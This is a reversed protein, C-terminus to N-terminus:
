VVTWQGLNTRAKPPDIEDALARLFSATLSRTFIIDEVEVITETRTKDSQGYMQVERVEDTLKITLKM